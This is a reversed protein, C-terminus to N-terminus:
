TADARALGALFISSYFRNDFCLRLLSPAVSFTSDCCYAMSNRVCERWVKRWVPLREVVPLETRGLEASLIPTEIDSSVNTGLCFSTTASSSTEQVTTYQERGHLTVLQWPMCAVFSM